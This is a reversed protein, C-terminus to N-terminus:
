SWAWLHPTAAPDAAAKEVPSGDALSTAASSASSGYRPPLPSPPFRSLRSPEGTKKISFIYFCVISLLFINILNSSNYLFKLYFVHNQSNVASLSAPIM